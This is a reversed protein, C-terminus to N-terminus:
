LPTPPPYWAGTLVFLEYGALLTSLGVTAAIPRGIANVLGEVPAGNIMQQVGDLFLHADYAPVATLLATAINVTPQVKAFADTFNAPLVGSIASVPNWKFVDAVDSLTLGALDNGFATVGQQTGTALHGLLAQPDVSPFVGFPTPVDPPGTSYGHALDGYGLNVLVRLDPEILDAMANGLLPISRLPQVLPLNPNTIMYYTTNGTYGQSPQLMKLEYGTPLAAPNLSPYLPHAYYFGAFANLDALVNIPYQPWDSIGDYELTYITTPWVTNSPTAGYFTQGLSPFSLGPFRAFLGGNPNMPDGLLQFGLQQDTLPSHMNLLKQMELSAIIAGQSIGHVVVPNGGPTILGHQGAATGFLTTDLIQLGQAVSENLTLVTTGTLPYLGAPTFMAFANSLLGGPFAPKIYNALVTTIYDPSPMGNGSGSIFVSAYNAPFTFPPTAAAALAGASTAETGAYANAAGGLAAVFDRQYGEILRTVAQYEQGLDNFLMATAASVEDAAAALVGTTRTAAAANAESIASGLGAIDAAAAAMAAPQALMNTM